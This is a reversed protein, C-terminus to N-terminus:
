VPAYNAPHLTFEGTVYGQSDITEVVSTTPYIAISEPYDSSHDDFVIHPSGDSDIFTYKPAPM